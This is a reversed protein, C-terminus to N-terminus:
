VAPHLAPRNRARVVQPLLSGAWMGAFGALLGALQPPFDEGAFARVLLWAAVGAVSSLLAGQTTARRWYLGMLLPVFAGVLTVTYAGAVMEYISSSSGLAFALVCAGFVLVSLRMARLFTKDSMGPLWHRLINEAFTTSPALLTASATSMIASLLAGFFFVQALTPMRELIFAPLIKQPDDQMLTAVTDPMVGFAAVGIYMPICAFLLYLLGGIVPGRRATKVDKSSMVRQYVDQQPISGLMMTVLAGLFFLIDHPTAPPLFDLLNRSTAEHVVAGVGGALDTAFYAITFLGAVIVIMQFFDTLAVSWMGGFLTYTMVILTGIIMGGTQSFVNPDLMHFVLGLAKIQAAVWGLYSIIIAVSMIVEVLPGYRERYYDGLTLLNHRYLRAAFFLGVLVLCMSAGFPDEVVGGLGEQVFVASVGLVAESGFWTAFTTAVVIFLPLSRGAIAYDTSNSVRRAAVVGIAVSVLLYLLVFWFVM